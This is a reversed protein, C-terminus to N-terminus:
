SDLCTLKCVILTMADLWEDPLVSKQKSFLCKRKTKMYSNCEFRLRDPTQYSAVYWYFPNYENDIVFDNIIVENNFLRAFLGCSEEDFDDLVSYSDHNNCFGCYVTYHSTNQPVLIIWTNGFLSRISRGSGLNDSLNYRNIIECLEQREGDFTISNTAQGFSPLCSVLFFFAIFYNM